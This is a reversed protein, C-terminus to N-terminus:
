SCQSSLVILTMLILRCILRLMRELVCNSYNLMIKLRFSRAPCRTNIAMAKMYCVLSALDSLRILTPELLDSKQRALSVLNALVNFLFHPSVQSRLFKLESALENQKENKEDRERRVRRLIFSFICFSAVLFPVVPFLIHDKREHREAYPSIWSYLCFVIQYSFQCLHYSSHIFYVVVM